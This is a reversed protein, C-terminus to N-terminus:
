LDHASAYHFRSDINDDHKADTHPLPLLIHHSPLFSFSSSFFLSFPFSSLLPQLLMGYLSCWEPALDHSNHAIFLRWRKSCPEYKLKNSAPWLMLLDPMWIETMDM